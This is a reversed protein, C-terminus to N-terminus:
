LSYSLGASILLLPIRSEVLVFNEISNSNMDQSGYDYYTTNPGYIYAVRFDVNVSSIVRIKVGAGIGFSPKITNHNLKSESSALTVSTTIGLADLDIAGDDDNIVGDNNTDRTFFADESRTKGYFRNIGIIGDLYPKFYNNRIKPQLRIVGHMSQLAVNTKFRQRIPLNDEFKLDSFTSEDYPMHHFQLGLSLYDKEKLTYFLGLNMGFFADRNINEAFMGFPKGLVGNLEVSLQANISQLLFLNAIIVSFLVIINKCKTRM